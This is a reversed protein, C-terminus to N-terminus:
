IFSVGGKFWLKFDSIVNKQMSFSGNAPPIFNALCIEGSSLEITWLLPLVPKIFICNIWKEVTGGEGGM